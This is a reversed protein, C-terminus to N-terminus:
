TEQEMLDLGQRIVAGLDIKSPCAFSCLAFDEEDCEFIGLQEMEEIDRALIARFLANPLIDMPLVDEWANLPIMARETGNQWTNFQYPTKRSGWFANSLSYRTRSSGIRLMGMFERKGGEPLVSVTSDYFGLYGDPAVKKGTLVDGSIIRNEGPKLHDKLLTGLNIGLRTQLHVPNNVGPGGITVVLAPDLQGTLFLQGITVVQQAQIIWVIDHPKIPNIHHIQIGVNGAPHPGSFYHLEVSRANLLVESATGKKISLHVKGDTLQSLADLGAQFPSQKGDLAIELNVACPATNWGSIFIDRPTDEPNAVKNYPRQRLVPWLNGALLTEKITQRDLTKIEAAKYTSHEVHKEGSAVEIIIREVTRRPGMQIYKITGGAPAPWRVEPQQKNYFLASGIQVEDGTNVLLKPKCGKFEIPKVAVTEPRPARILETGPVGAIRIDHGKKIDIQAM